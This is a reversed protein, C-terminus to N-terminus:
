IIWKINECRHASLIGILCCPLRHLHLLTVCRRRFNIWFNGTAVTRAYTNARAGTNMLWPLPDSMTIFQPPITFYRPPVAPYRRLTPRELPRISQFTIMLESALPWPLFPPLITTKATPTSPLPPKIREDRDHLTPSFHAKSALWGGMWLFSTWGIARPTFSSERFTFSLSLLFSPRRKEIWPLSPNRLRSSTKMAVSFKRNSM